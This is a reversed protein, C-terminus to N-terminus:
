GEGLRRLLDLRRAELQDILSEQEAAATLAAAKDAADGQESVSERLQAATRRLGALGSEVEQLRSRLEAEDTV